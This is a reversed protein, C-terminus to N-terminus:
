NTPVDTVDLSVDYLLFEQLAAPLGLRSVRVFLNRKRSLRLLHGRIVDRCLHSLHLQSDQPGTNAAVDACVNRRVVVRVNGRVDGRVDACVDGRVYACVDTLVDAHVFAGAAFLLMRMTACQVKRHTVVGVRSVRAGAALLMKACNLHEVGLHKGRVVMYLATHRNNDLINVGAGAGILVRVCKDRAEKAALMLATLSRQNRGNVDAGKKILLDACTDHGEQAAWMLSTNGLKNESTHQINVDAGAEILREISKFNGKRAAFCLPTDGSHNAINVDAGAATLATVCGIPNNGLMAMILPTEGSMTSQVNVSAGAEVLLDICQAHEHHAAWILATNGQKDRVNVDAGGAVLSAVCNQECKTIVERILPSRGTFDPINVDAGARILMQVRTNNNDQVAKMLPTIGDNNQINVDAGAETLNEICQAHEHYAAWALATNGEKDRVNVDAGTAALKQVCNEECKGTVAVILPSRGTFDPINM